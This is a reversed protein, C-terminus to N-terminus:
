EARSSRRSRKATRIKPPGVFAQEKTKYHKLQQQFDKM